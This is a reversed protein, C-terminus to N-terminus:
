TESINAVPEERTFLLAAQYRLSRKRVFFKVNKEWLNTVDKGGRWFFREFPFIKRNWPFARNAHFVFQSFGQFALFFESGAWPKPKWVKRSIRENRTDEGGGVILGGIVPQGLTSYGQAPTNLM